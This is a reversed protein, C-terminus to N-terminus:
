GEEEGGKRGELKPVMKLGSCSNGSINSMCLSLHYFPLIRVFSRVFLHVFLRVFSRVFSRVFLCVKMSILISTNSLMKVKAKLHFTYKYHNSHISFNVNSPM